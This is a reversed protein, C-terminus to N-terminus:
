LNALRELVAAAHGPVRVGRWEAVLTGQADILFTSRIVGIFKRGYLTKEGLVGFANCWTEDVDAVLPFPLAQKDRFKAHSTASDRSVGIIECGRQRFEPYLDRFDRAENTCGPTADKPYFYVVVPHGRLEDLKLTGGDHLTGALKPTKKGIAISM